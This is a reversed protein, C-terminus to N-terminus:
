ASQEDVWLVRPDFAISAFMSLFVVSGFVVVGPGPSVSVVDGLKMIAVLLAVLMVDVMGWKGVLEVARYLKAHESSARIGTGSQAIVCLGIISVLKGLPAIVSFILVAWGVFLHGEALLEAMGNWISSESVFGFREIRLVPLIMALPYLILAALSLALARSVTRPHVGRKLQTHCRVCQAVQRVELMPIQHLLGCAHCKEISRHDSMIGYYPIELDSKCRYEVFDLSSEFCYIWSRHM